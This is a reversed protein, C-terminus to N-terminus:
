GGTHEDEGPRAALGHRSSAGLVRGSRGSTPKGRPIGPGLTTPEEPGELIRIGEALASHVAWLRQVHRDDARTEGAQGKGALKGPRSVRPRSSAERSQPSSVCEWGKTTAIRRTSASPM